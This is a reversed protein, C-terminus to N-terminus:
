EQCEGIAIGGRECMVYVHKGVCVCSPSCCTSSAFLGCRLGMGHWAEGEGGERGGKRGEVALSCKSRIVKGM